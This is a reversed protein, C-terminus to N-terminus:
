WLMLKLKPTSYLYIKYLLTEHYMPYIFPTKHIWSYSLVFDSPFFLVGGSGDSRSTINRIKGNITLVTTMVEHFSHVHTVLVLHATSRHTVTNRLILKTYIKEHPLTSLHTIMYLCIDPVHTHTFSEFLNICTHKIFHQNFYLIVM